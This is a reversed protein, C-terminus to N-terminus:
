RMIQRVRHQLNLEVRQLSAKSVVHCVKVVVKPCVIVKERVTKSLPRMTVEIEHAGPASKDDPTSYKAADNLEVEGPGRLCGIVSRAIM